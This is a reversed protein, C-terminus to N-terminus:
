DPACPREQPAPMPPSVPPSVPPSFLPLLQAAVRQAAGQHAAAFALARQAWADRAPDNLLELAARIGAALDPARRAAGAAIADTAAQAFNFTHPGMVLPCGCAAAEILNQGGFPAYSGGLLAADACAYFLPMEGVSDGLWVDCAAASAPPQEGWGSRRALSLGHAQVLAAVEDFRQPHRPVLLLLPRPGPQARWLGLLLAEEGERTSAALLVPRPLAQRWQRGGALLPAPPTVDFKLNGCVQVQAVGAARLRQADAETQALALALKAAAPHLLAAFRRGRAASRPNLRGNALVMPIGALGAQHQMSPWIETEMLVGMAPQFHRLFRRTAGPTDFPMWAQCDGPQLLLEGAALGTGTGHTFVFRLEPRLRRLQEVLPQSARTEGLSVAHLWLRGPAPRPGRYLGLRQGMAHRYLPEKLSRWGLRLLYLPTLLRLVTAYLALALCQWTRGPM